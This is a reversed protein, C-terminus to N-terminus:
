GRCPHDFMDTGQLYYNREIGQIKKKKKGLIFETIIYNKNGKTISNPGM